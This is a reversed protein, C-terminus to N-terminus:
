PVNKIIEPVSKLIEPVNKKNETVSKFGTPVSKLKTFVVVVKLLFEKLVRNIISATKGPSDVTYLVFSHM